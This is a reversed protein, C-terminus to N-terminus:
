KSCDTTFYVNPSGKTELRFGEPPFPMIWVCVERLLPNDKIILGKLSSNNSVDLVNLQNDECYIYALESNKSVDLTTLRNYGCGLYTLETNKTVDLTSLQNWGCHLYQLATNKTVDLTSLQNGNCALYILETNNSVDLAIIQNRYCHLHELVINSSIDLTTLQNDGCWLHTLKTNMSIDLSRIKFPGTSLEALNTFAEIGTLDIVNYDQKTWNILIKTIAQAEGNDIKGDENTDVGSDILFRLFEADVITFHPANLNDNDTDIPDSDDRPCWSAMLLIAIFVFVIQKM